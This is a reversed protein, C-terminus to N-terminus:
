VTKSVFLGKGLFVLAALLILSIGISKVLNNQFALLTNQFFRQTKYKTHQWYYRSEEMKIAESHGRNNAITQNLVTDFLQYFDNQEQANHALIPAILTKLRLVDDDQPIRNMLNNLEIYTDTGIFHGESEWATLLAAILMERKVGSDQATHMM